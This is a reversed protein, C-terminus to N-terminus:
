WKTELYDFDDSLPLCDCMRVKLTSSKKRVTAVWIKANKNVSFCFWYKGSSIRFLYILPHFFGWVSVSFFLCYNMCVSKKVFFYVLNNFFFQGKKWWTSKWTWWRVEQNYITWTQVNLHSSSPHTQPNTRWFAVTAVTTASSTQKIKKKLIKKAHPM